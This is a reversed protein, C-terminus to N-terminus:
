GGHWRPFLEHPIYFQDLIKGVIHLIVDKLTEPRHYFGPIPPLIVAGLEAAQYMLRLHGVHLPTERVALVLRRREKLCVDAARVLLNDNYSHVIASLTKITCPVVAMGETLFSGSAIPAGHDTPSYVSSALAEVQALSLNTELEITKRAADTIVLHTEVAKQGLAKLLEIGYIVGSAGTIGVIIRKPTGVAQIGTGASNEIPYM